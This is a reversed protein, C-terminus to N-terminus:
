KELQYKKILPLLTNEWFAQDIEGVQRYRIMGHKDILFTEPTGYVRLMKSTAGSEDVGSAIYPNGQKVLFEKADLADDKYIISYIPVEGSKQIQMLTPVEELCSPCWSAWVNLLMVKGTLNKNTLFKHPESLLPLKFDPIEEKLATSFFPNQPSRLELMVLVVLATVMLIPLLYPFRSKKRSM